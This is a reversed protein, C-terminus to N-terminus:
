GGLVLGGAVAVLQRDQLGLERQGLNESVWTRASGAV